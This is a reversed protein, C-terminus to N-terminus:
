QLASRKHKDLRVLWHSRCGQWLWALAVLGCMGSLGLSVALEPKKFVQFFLSGSMLLMVVGVLCRAISGPVLRWWRQYRLALGAGIIGALIGLLGGGLTDLPWHAGVAVRSVAVAGAFLLAVLALLGMRWSREFLSLTVLVATVGTFITLSHGSPLSNNAKLARGLIIFQDPDLYAAPRPVAMLHKLTVSFLSAVPAAALAAAMAQPRWLIIPSLLPILVAADGFQTLNRWLAAPWANLTTNLSIFADRQLDCYGTRDFQWGFLLAFLLGFLFVGLTLLPLWATWSRQVLPHATVVPGTPRVPDEGARESM